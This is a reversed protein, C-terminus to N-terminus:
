ITLKTSLYNSLIDYFIRKERPVIWMLTRSDLTEDIKFLININDIKQDMKINFDKPHYCIFDNNRHTSLHIFWKIKTDYKTQFIELEKKYSIDSSVNEKESWTEKPNQSAFLLLEYKKEINIMFKNLLYQACDFSFSDMERLDNPEEWLINKKVDDDKVIDVVFLLIFNTDEMYEIWRMKFFNFIFKVNKNDNFYRLCYIFIEIIM